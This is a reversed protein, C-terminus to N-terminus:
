AKRRTSRQEETPPHNRWWQREEDSGHLLSRDLDVIEKAEVIEDYNVWITFPVGRRDEGMPPQIAIQEDNADIIWGREVFHEHETDRGTLRLAWAKADIVIRYSVDNVVFDERTYSM